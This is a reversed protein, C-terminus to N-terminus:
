RALDKLHLARDDRPLKKSESDVCRCNHMSKGSSKIIIGEVKVLLSEYAKDLFLTLSKRDPLHPLQVSYVQHLVM